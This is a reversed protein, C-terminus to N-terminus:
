KAIEKKACQLKLADLARDNKDRLRELKDEYQQRVIEVDQIKGRMGWLYGAAIWAGSLITVIALMGLWRRVPQTKPDHLFGHISEYANM